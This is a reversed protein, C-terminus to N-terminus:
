AKRGSILEALLPQVLSALHEVVSAADVEIRADGVRCAFGPQPWGEILRPEALAGAAIERALAARVQERVRAALAPAIEVSELRKGAGRAIEVVAQGVVGPDALAKEAGAALARRLIANLRERLRGVADRCALELDARGRERSQEASAEAEAKIREAEARAEALLTAVQSKAEAVLRQGEAAGADVGDQRLQAIFGALDPAEAKESM